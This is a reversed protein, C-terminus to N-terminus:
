KRCRYADMFAVKILDAEDLHLDKPHDQLYKVLVRILQGSTAQNPICFAPATMDVADRFGQVYGGCYALDEGNVDRAGDMWRVAASCQRLLSEGSRTITDAYASTVALLALLGIIWRNM